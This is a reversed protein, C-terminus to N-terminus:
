NEFSCQDNENWDSVNSWRVLRSNRFLGVVERVEDEGSEAVLVVCAGGPRIVREMEAAFLAEDFRATFALDFVGDFFPLNRPDARRVLPPSELIEVGTVDDIGLRRLAAVEHGSGASVCLVRSHNFAAARLLLHDRFLLSFSLVKAAWLRTSSFDCHIQPLPPAAEEARPPPRLPHTHRM